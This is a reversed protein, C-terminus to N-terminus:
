AKTKMLGDGTTQESCFYQSSTVSSVVKSTSFLCDLVALLDEILRGGPEGARRSCWHDLPREFNIPIIYTDTLFHFFLLLFFTPFPVGKNRVRVPKGGKSGQM